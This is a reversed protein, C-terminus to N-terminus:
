LTDHYHHAAVGLQRLNNSCQARTGGRPSSSRGAVVARDLHRHDRDRGLLEVLTFGRRQVTRLLKTM